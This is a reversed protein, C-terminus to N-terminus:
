SGRRAPEEASEAPAPEPPAPVVTRVCTLHHGDRVFFSGDAVAVGYVTTETPLANEVVEEPGERTPRLM